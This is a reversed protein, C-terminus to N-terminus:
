VVATRRFDRLVRDGASEFLERQGAAKEAAVEAMQEAQVELLKEVNVRLQGGSTQTFVGPPWARSFALRRLAPVAMGLREAADRPRVFM